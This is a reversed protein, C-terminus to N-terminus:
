REGQSKRRLPRRYLSRYGEFTPSPQSPPVESEIVWGKWGPRIHERTNITRASSKETAPPIIFEAPQKNDREPLSKNRGEPSDREENTEARDAAESDTGFNDRNQYRSLLSM